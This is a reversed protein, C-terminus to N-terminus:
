IEDSCARSEACIYALSKASIRAAPVALRGKKENKRKSANTNRLTATAKTLLHESFQKSREFYVEIRYDHDEAHDKRLVETEMCM